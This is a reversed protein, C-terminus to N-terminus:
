DAEAAAVRPWHFSAGVVFVVLASGWLFAPDAYVALFVLYVAMPLLLVRATSIVELSHLSTPGALRLAPLCASLHFGVGPLRSLEDAADQGRLVDRPGNSM